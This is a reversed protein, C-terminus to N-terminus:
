PYLLGRTWGGDAGRVWAVREHLRDEHGQWLEIRHPLVRYGGWHPPRPVPQGHYRAEVEAVQARLAERSTLPSSQASAWAGIQSGRPRTAHYADSEADTARSVAGELIVQRELSKWHILLAAFGTADLERGKRSERNTFLLFGNDADFGKLLITRLSPRGDPGVTALQAADPVRPETDQAEGWWRHLTDYPSTDRDM